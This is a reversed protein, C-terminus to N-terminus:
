SRLSMAGALSRATRGRALCLGLYNATRRRHHVHRALRIGPGSLRLRDVDVARHNPQRPHPFYERALTGGEHVLPQSLDVDGAAGREGDRRASLLGIDTLLGTAAAFIGWLILSWFILEKASRKEAYYAAPVQFFFYGLFFLAGLLSSAAANINLDHAMGGAAGFSYNARDVYALSYTIFAIPILRGWRSSYPGAAIVSM